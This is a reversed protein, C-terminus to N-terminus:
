CTTVPHLAVSRWCPLDLMSFVNFTRRLLRRVSSNRSLDGDLRVSPMTPSYLGPPFQIFERNCGSILARTLRRGQTQNKRLEQLRLTCRHPRALSVPWLIDSRKHPLSSPSTASITSECGGIFQEPYSVGWDRRMDCLGSALSFTICREAGGVTPRRSFVIPFDSAFLRLAWSSRPGSGRPVDSTLGLQRSAM